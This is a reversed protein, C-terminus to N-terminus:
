TNHHIALRLEILPPIYHTSHTNSDSIQTYAINQLMAEYWDRAADRLFEVALAVKRNDNAAFASSGRIHNHSLSEASVVKSILSFPSSVIFPSEFLGSCSYSLM